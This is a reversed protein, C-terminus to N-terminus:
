KFIYNSLKDFPNVEKNTLPDLISYYKFFVMINIVPVFTGVLFVWTPKDNKFIGNESFAKKTWKFNYVSIIMYLLTFIIIIIKM